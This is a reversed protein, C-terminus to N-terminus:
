DCSRVVLVRVREGEERVPRLARALRLAEPADRCLAFLTSGSGSMLVGAAGLRELRQRLEDNEKLLDKPTKKEIM